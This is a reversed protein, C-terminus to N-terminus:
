AYRQRVAGRVRDFEAAGPGDHGAGAPEYGAGGPGAAVTGLEADLARLLAFECHAARVLDAADYVVRDGVVFM